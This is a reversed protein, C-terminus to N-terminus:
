SLPKRKWEIKSSRTSSSPQFKSSKSIDTMLYVIKVGGIMSRETELVASITIHIMEKELRSLYRPM